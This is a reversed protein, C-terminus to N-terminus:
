GLYGNSDPDRRVREGPADTRAFMEEKLVIEQSVKLGRGTRKRHIDSAMKASQIRAELSRDARRSAAIYAREQNEEHSRET